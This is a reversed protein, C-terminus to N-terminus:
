MVKLAVYAEDVPNPLAAEKTKQFVKLLITPLEKKFMQYSIRCFDDIKTTTIPRHLIKLKDKLFKQKHTELLKNM